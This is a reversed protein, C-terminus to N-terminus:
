ADAERHTISRRLAALPAREDFTVHGEDDRVVGLDAFLADLDVDGPALALEAYVDTIATSGTAKEAEALVQKTSWDVRGTAGISALHRMVDRLSKTHETAQRLRLDAVLWFVAGGWYTRGWTHTRDLGRDGPRPRGYPMSATWREWVREHTINGARARVIPELYTSLGEQMWRHRSSLDPFCAHLMEHVMTWDTDLSRESTRRGCRIDIWRGDRHSGFGVTGGGSALITLELSPVPLDGGFYDAIWQASRRAWAEFSAFPLSPDGDVVLEITAGAVAIAASRRDATPEPDHARVRADAHQTSGTPACAVLAAGTVTLVFGRRTVASGIPPM